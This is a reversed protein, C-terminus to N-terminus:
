KTNDYKTQHLQSGYTKAKTITIMPNTDLDVINMAKTKPENIIIHAISSSLINAQGVATM